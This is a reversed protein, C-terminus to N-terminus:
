LDIIFQKINEKLESNAIIVPMKGPTNIAGKINRGISNKLCLISRLQQEGELERVM